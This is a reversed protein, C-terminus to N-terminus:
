AAGNWYKAHILINDAIRSYVHLKLVLADMCWKISCKLSACCDSQSLLLVHKKQSTMQAARVCQVVCGVLWLCCSPAPLM